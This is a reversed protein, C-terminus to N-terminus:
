KDDYTVHLKGASNNAGTTTIGADENEKDDAAADPVGLQTSTERKNSDDDGDNAVASLQRQRKKHNIGEDREGGRDGDGDGLDTSFSTDFEAELAAATTAVSLSSSKQPSTFLDVTEQPFISWHYNNNAKADNKSSSYSSPSSPSSPTTTLSQKTTM